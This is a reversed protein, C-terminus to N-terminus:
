DKEMDVLSSLAPVTLLDHSGLPDATVPAAAHNAALMRAVESPLAARRGFADRQTRQGGYVKGLKPLINGSACGVGREKASTM